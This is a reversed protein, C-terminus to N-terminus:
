NLSAWGFEDPNKARGIGGMWEMWRIRGKGDNENVLFAFRFLTGSNGSIGLRALPLEARYRTIGDRHIVTAPVKWLGKLKEQPAIHAYVSGTGDKGSLTLETYNGDLSFFAIQISDDRWGNEPLSNMVHRDDTVDISLLLNGNRRTMAFSCSLDEPGMWRPIHPDFSMENVRDLTNLVIRKAPLTGEAVPYCVNVTVPVRWEMIQKGLILKLTEERSVMGNVADAPVSFPISLLQTEGAKLTRRGGAYQLDLSRSFPNRVKIEVHATRGAACGVIRSQAAIPAGIRYAGAPCSVYIVDDLPVTAYGNHNAVPIKRGFLDVVELMGAGELALLQRTGAIRPWLALVERKGDTSRFRYIDLQRNGSLKEGRGTDGLRRILENYAVFSPKPRNDSTVLGFSDDAMPDMDWYDQLTFWIYFETNRSKAYIIKRALTGAQRRITDPAYGARDGTETNCVPVDKGAEALWAEVKEQREVYDPLSGHAHFSAIDYYEKARLYTDRSFNKKERPHKITVGGTTLRIAPATRNRAEHIIRFAALYEDFTGNYFDLDPENWFEFYRASAFPRFCGFVKEMHSRFAPLITPAGRHKPVKQTYAPVTDTYSICALMGLKEYTNMYRRIAPFSDTTGTEIRGGTICFREMDFGALKKWQNHLANEAEGNWMVTDQIGFWMPTHNKRGSNPQFVAFWDLYSSKCRDSRFTVNAHYSGIEQPPLTLDAPVSGFPPIRVQTEATGTCRGRDDCLAISLTGAIEEPAANRLRYAARLPKGPESALPALRPRITVTRQRSVTGTFAIDDILIEGKGAIGDAEFHIKSLKYPPAFGRITIPSRYRKWGAMGLEAPHTRLTRGASDELTFAFRGRIGRSDADFEVADAFVEPLSAKARCFDLKGTKSADAFDFKLKGAYGDDRSADPTASLVLDAAFWRGPTTNAVEWTRWTGVDSFDELVLRGAARNGTPNKGPVAPTIEAIWEAPLASDYIRVEDLEIRRTGIQKLRGLMLSQFSDLRKMPAPREAIKGDVYLRVKGAKGDFIIAVDSWSDKQPPLHGSGMGAELSGEGKARVAIGAPISHETFVLQAWDGPKLSNVLGFNFALGSSPGYKIRCYITGSEALKAFRPANSHVADATLVIAGGLQITGSPDARFFGDSGFVEKKLRVGGIDDTFMTDESSTDNFTWRALLGSTFDAHVCGAALLLFIPLLTKRNM